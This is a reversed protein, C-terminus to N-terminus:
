VPYVPLRTIIIVGTVVTSYFRSRTWLVGIDKDDKYYRYSVPLLIGLLRRTGTCRKVEREDKMGRKKCVGSVVCVLWWSRVVVVCAVNKFMTENTGIYYKLLCLTM